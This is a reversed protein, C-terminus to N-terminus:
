NYFLYIIPIYYVDYPIYDIIDHCSQVSVFTVLITKIIVKWPIYSYFVISYM